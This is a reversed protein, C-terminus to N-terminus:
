KIDKKAKPLVIRRVYNSVSMEEVDSAKKIFGQEEESVVFCIVKNRKKIAM